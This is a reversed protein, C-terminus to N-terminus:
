YRWRESTIIVKTGSTLPDIAIDEVDVILGM